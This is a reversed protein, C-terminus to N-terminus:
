PNNYIKELLCNVKRLYKHMSFLLLSLALVALLLLSGAIGYVSRLLNVKSIQKKSLFKAEANTLNEDFAKNISDIVLQRERNKKFYIDNYVYLIRSIKVKPMERKKVLVNQTLKAQLPLNGDFWRYYCSILSKFFVVRVTDEVRPLLSDSMVLFAIGDNPNRQVFNDAEHLMILSNQRSFHKLINSYAKMKSIAFTKDDGWLYKVSNLINSQNESPFFDLLKVLENVLRTKEKLSVANCKGFASSLIEKYGIENKIWVRLHDYKYRNYASEGYPFYWYGSSEWPIGAADSYKKINAQALEWGKIVETTESISDVGAQGGSEVIQSNADGEKNIVKQADTIVSAVDSALVEIEPPYPSKEIKIKRVPIISWMFLLLSGLMAMAVIGVFFRWIIKSLGFLYKEEVQSIKKNEM